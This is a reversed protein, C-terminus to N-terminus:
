SYLYTPYNHDILQFRIPICYGEKYHYRGLDKILKSSSMPLLLMM